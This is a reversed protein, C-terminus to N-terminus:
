ATKQRAARYRGILVVVSLVVGGVFGSAYSALHSWLDTLFAVHRELPVRSALPEVLWVMKHSAFYHGALGAMFACVGCVALLILIPKILSRASRKPWTGVRSVVALPVGLILGVWWTAVIGWGFALETPTHLNWLPPHGITFYEVCVHATILDHIIGYVVSSLISLGIIGIFRM